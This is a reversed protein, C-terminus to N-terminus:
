ETEQVRVSRMSLVKRLGIFILIYYGIYALFETLSPNGNYGFLAKLLQGFLSEESLIHNIDWIPDIIAPVWGAENLEHVGHAVLGAALLILLVGTVQFFRRINLRVTTAFILWGLLAATIVGAVGGILTESASVTLAAATLFLATEVGERLVAFFAIGFLGWRQGQLVAQRVDSEMGQQMLPGQRHMWIIMWSLVGAAVLMMVGEFVEEITGELSAGFFQLLGAIVFSLIIALTVGAWVATRYGQRGMKSLVGLTLGVVLAAELGERLGILFGPIM